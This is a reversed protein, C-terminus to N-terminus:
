KLPQNDSLPKELRRFFRQRLVWQGRKNRRVGLRHTMLLDRLQNGELLHIPGIADETAARRAAPAFSSTTILLGQRSRTRILAGRLEDVFRRSVPRQYQKVQVLVPTTGFEARLSATIDVGGHQNRGKHSRRRIRHDRLIRVDEYGAVRLLQAVLREYGRVSLAHLQAELKEAFAEEKTAEMAPLPEGFSRQNFLVLFPLLLAPAATLAVALEEPQCRNM